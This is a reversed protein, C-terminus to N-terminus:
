QPLKGAQVGRIMDLTPDIAAAMTECYAYLWPEPDENNLALSAQADGALQRSILLTGSPEFGSVVLHHRALVRGLQESHTAFLPRNAFLWILLGARMPAPLKAELVARVATLARPDKLTAVDDEAIVGASCLRATLAKHAATLVQPLPHGVTKVPRRSNLPAWDRQALRHAKWIDLAALVAPDEASVRGMTALRLQALDTRAGVLAAEYHALQVGAEARAAEWGRRLGESFRIRAVGEDIERLLDRMQASAALSAFKSM